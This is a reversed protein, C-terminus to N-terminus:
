SLAIPRLLLLLVGDNAPFVVIRGITGSHGMVSARLERVMVRGHQISIDGPVCLLSLGLLASSFALVWKNAPGVERGRM